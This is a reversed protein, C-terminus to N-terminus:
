CYRLDKPRSGLHRSGPALWTLDGCLLDFHSSHVPCTRIHPRTDTEGFTNLDMLILVLEGPKPKACALPTESILQALESRSKPELGHASLERRQQDALKTLIDDRRKVEKEDDDDSVARDHASSSDDASGSDDDDAKQPTEPEEKAAQQEEAMAVIAHQM